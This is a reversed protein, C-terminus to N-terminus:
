HAESGALRFVGSMCPSFYTPTDPIYTDEAPTSHIIKGGQKHSGNIYIAKAHPTTGLLLL